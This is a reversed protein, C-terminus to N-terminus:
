QIKTCESFGIGTLRRHGELAATMSTDTNLAKVAIEPLVLVACAVM